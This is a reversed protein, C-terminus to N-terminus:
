PSVNVEDAKFKRNLDRIVEETLDNRPDAYVVSRNLATVVDNPESDSHPGPSVKVVYNLGKAKALAAVTQQIEQYFTASTKAQRYAFERETQKLGAEYNANFITM